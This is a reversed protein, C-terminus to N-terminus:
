QTKPVQTTYGGHGSLNDLEDCYKQCEETTLFLSDGEIWEEGDDSFGLPYNSYSIEVDIKNANGSTIVASIARITILKPQYSNKRAIGTGLCYACKTLMRGQETYGKGKCHTCPQQSFSHVFDAFYVEQGIELNTKIIM